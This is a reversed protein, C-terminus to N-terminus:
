TPTYGVDLPAVHNDRRLRQEDVTRENSRDVSIGARASGTRIRLLRCNRNLEYLRAHKFLLPVGVSARLVVESRGHVVCLRWTARAIALQIGGQEFPAHHHHWLVVITGIHLTGSHTFICRSILRTLSPGIGSGAGHRANLQSHAM